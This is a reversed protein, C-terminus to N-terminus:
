PSSVVFKPIPGTPLVRTILDRTVDIIAVASPMISYHDFDRRYYPVWLYKGDASMASEVPKGAFVNPNSPASDPFKLWPTERAGLTFLKEQEERFRHIIVGIRRLGQPDYVITSFGELANVYVKSGDPLFRVSKPSFVYPDFKDAKHM